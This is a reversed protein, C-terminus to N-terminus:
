RGRWMHMVLLHGMGVGRSSGRESCCPKPRTGPPPGLAPSQAARRVPAPHLRLPREKAGDVSGLLINRLVPHSGGPRCGGLPNLCLLQDQQGQLSPVYPGTQGCELALLCSGWGRMNGLYSIGGLSHSQPGLNVWQCM